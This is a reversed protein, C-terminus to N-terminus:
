QHGFESIIYRAVEEIQWKPTSTAGCVGVSDNEEFWEKSIERCNEIMYTRPNVKKCLEYLVKGNSSEKGSVFIIVSHKESFERLHPHRSSVQSCITNFVTINTDDIGRKRIESIIHGALSEYMAPDKTTQSFLAIPMSLNLLGSSIARDFDNNNEVVTADSNVQGILGNVEAHGNKGFIVIQVGREKGDRYTQAIKQQLKLVVPCTCDIIKLNNRESLSYIAPPEGHARFLVTCDHLSEFEKYDIIKLGKGKLRSLETGNHVIAGLSFLSGEELLQKEAQEIARVVGHCCGSKDDICVKMTAEVSYKLVM